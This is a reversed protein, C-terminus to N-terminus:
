HGTESRHHRDARPTQSMTPPSAGEGRAHTAELMTRWSGHLQRIDPPPIIDGTLLALLADDIALRALRAVDQWEAMVSEDVAMGRQVLEELRDPVYATAIRSWANWYADSRATVMEVAAKWAGAHFTEDVSGRARALDWLEADDLVRVREVFQDVLQGIRDTDGM